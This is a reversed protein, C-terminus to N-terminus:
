GVKIGPYLFDMLSSWFLDFLGLFISMIFVTIIVVMTAARTEEANPWTVKRLEVIVENALTMIKENRYLIVAVVVGTLMGLLTTLTFRNGILSVDWDGLGVIDLVAGLFKATLVWLLVGGTVLTLAIWKSNSGM